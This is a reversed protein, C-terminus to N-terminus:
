EKSTESRTRMVLTVTTGRDDIQYTVTDMLVRMIYIGLGGPSRQHPEIYQGKGELSFGHGFDHVRITLVGDEHDCSLLFGEDSAGYLVANTLAEGAALLADLVQLASLGQQELFQQIRRRGEVVSARQSPFSAKFGAM